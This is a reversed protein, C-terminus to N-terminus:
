GSKKRRSKAIKKRHRETADFTDDYNHNEKLCFDRLTQGSKKWANFLKEAEAPDYMKSGPPRGRNGKTKTGTKKAAADMQKAEGTVVAPPQPDAELEDLWDMLVDVAFISAAAFNDIHSIWVPPQQPQTWEGPVMASIPYLYKDMAVANATLMVGPLRQLGILLVVDRWLGSNQFIVANVPVNPGFALKVIPSPFVSGILTAADTCVKEFPPFQQKALFVYQWRECHPVTTSNDSVIWGAMRRTWSEGIETNLSSWARPDGIRGSLEWGWDVAYLGCRSVENYYYVQKSEHYSDVTRSKIPPVDGIDGDGKWVPKTLTVFSVRPDYGDDALKQFRSRISEFSSRLLKISVILEPLFGPWGAPGRPTSDLSEPPGPKLSSGNCCIEGGTFRLRVPALGGKWELTKGRDPQWCLATGM